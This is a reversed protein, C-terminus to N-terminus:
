ESRQYRDDPSSQIHTVEKGDPGLFVNMVMHWTGAAQVYRYSWVVESSNGLGLRFIRYPPGFECRVQEPSWKGQTLYAFQEDTLVSVVQGVNGRADVNTAYAYSGEPQQSWVMRTSGGPGACTLTPKGYRQKLQAVPTGPAVTNPNACAGLAAALVLPPVLRITNM